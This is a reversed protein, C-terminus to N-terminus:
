THISYYAKGMDEWGHLIVGGCIGPKGGCFERFFFSYPVFDSFFEIRETRPWKFNDRLFKVLKRRVLKNGICERLREQCRFVLWPLKRRPPLSLCRWEKPGDAEASVRVFVMLAEYDLTVTEKWGILRNGSRSLWDFSISVTGDSDDCRFVAYCGSDCRIVYGLAELDELTDRFVFFGSSKGKARSSTKFEIGDEVCRAKVMSRNM